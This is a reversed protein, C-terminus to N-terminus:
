RDSRRGKLDRTPPEVGGPPMGQRSSDITLRYYGLEQATKRRHCNACRVQCKKIEEVIRALEFERAVAFSITFEKEGVHDFDLCPVVDFGCDVCPHWSLFERVYEANRIHCPRTVGPSRSKDDRRSKTRLRHCNACVVECKEIELDIKEVPAGANIM